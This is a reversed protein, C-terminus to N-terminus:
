MLSICTLFSTKKKKEKRVEELDLPSFLCLTASVANASYIAFNVGGDRATAGFPTPRGQLAQLRRLKPAEVVLAASELETGGGGDRAKVVLTSSRSHTRWTLTPKHTKDLLKTPSSHFRWPRRRAHLKPAHCLSSSASTILQEM